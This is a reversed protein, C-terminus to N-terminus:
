LVVVVLDVIMGAADSASGAGGPTVADVIESPSMEWPLGGFIGRLTDGAAEAARDLGRSAADRVSDIAARARDFGNGEAWDAAGSLGLAGAVGTGARKATSTAQQTYSM